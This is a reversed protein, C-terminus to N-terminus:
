LLGSDRARAVAQTRSHVGLKGYVTSTYKKVTGVALFLQDGIERNALGAALLRLVQLERETLPDVLHPSPPLQAELGQRAKEEAWAALLSGVYDVSIGRAASERLLRAVPEGEDIFIRVYGEPGALSLAPELAEVAQDLQGQAQMIIAQLVWSAILYHNGGAAEAADSVEALLGSAEALRGQAASVRAKLLRASWYACADYDGAREEHLNAWRSAAAVDGQKLRLWAEAM